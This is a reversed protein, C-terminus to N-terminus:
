MHVGCACKICVNACKDNKQMKIINCAKASIVHNQSM